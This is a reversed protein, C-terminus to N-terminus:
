HLISYAFVAVTMAFIAFGLSTLALHLNPKLKFNGVNKTKMAQFIAFISFGLWLGLSSGINNVVDFLSTKMISKYTIIDPNINLIIEQYDKTSNAKSKVYSNIAVTKCPSKCLKYYSNSFINTYFKQFVAENQILLELM